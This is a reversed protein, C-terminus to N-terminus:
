FRASLGILADAQFMSDGRIVVTCGGSCFFGGSSHILTAYGRLEGRLTMTPSLAQEYGVAISLSPRLENQWGSQRPSLWTAGLGGALYGGQGARGEFFNSGGIHLYTINLSLDGAAGSGTAALPLTTRQTSVFLQLNRAPDLARDISFALAGSSALDTSTTAGGDVSQDFSGGGRWGGYFTIANQAAAPQAALLALALTLGLNKM